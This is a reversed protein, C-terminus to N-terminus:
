ASLITLMVALVAAVETFTSYTTGGITTPPATPDQSVRQAFQSLAGWNNELAIDATSLTRANSSGPIPYGYSDGYFFAQGIHNAIERFRVAESTAGITVLLARATLQNQTNNGTYNSLTILANLVGQPGYTLNQRTAGAQQELNIYNESFPVRTGGINANPFQYTVGNAAIWGQLYLNSAQFILTVTSTTSGQSILVRV